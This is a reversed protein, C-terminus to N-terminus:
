NYDHVVPFIEDKPREIASILGSNRRTRGAVKKFINGSQDEDCQLCPNLNGDEDNNPSLFYRLCPFLCKKSTNKTNYLWIKSCDNSFGLDKLCKINWSESLLGKFGCARVPTTLDSSEMYVALDQLTSCVGCTTSHTIYAGAMKAEEINDYTILQYSDRKKHDKYLVGCVKGDYPNYNDDIVVSSIDAYEGGLMDKNEEKESSLSIQFPDKDYPNGEIKPYPELIKKLKFENSISSPYKRPEFAICIDCFVLIQAITIILQLPLHGFKM